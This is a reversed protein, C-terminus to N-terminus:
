EENQIQEIEDLKMKKVPLADNKVVQVNQGECVDTLKANVKEQISNLNSQLSQFDSADAKEILLTNINNSLTIEINASM